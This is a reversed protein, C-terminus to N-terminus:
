NRWLKTAELIFSEKVEPEKFARLPIIYAFNMGSYLYISNEDELIATIESWPLFTQHEGTQDHVGLEDIEFIHRGLIGRQTKATKRVRNRFNMIVLLDAAIGLFVTALLCVLLSEKLLLMMMFITLHIGFFNVLFAKRMKPIKTMTYKNYLWYDREEVDTVVRM